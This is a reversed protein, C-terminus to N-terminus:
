RVFRGIMLVCANVVIIWRSVFIVNMVNFVVVHGDILFLLSGWSNIAFIVAQGDQEVFMVFNIGM